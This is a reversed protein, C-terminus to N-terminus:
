VHARGIKQVAPVVLLIAAVRVGLGLLFLRDALLDRLKLALAGAGEHM